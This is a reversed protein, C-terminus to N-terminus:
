SQSRCLKCLIFNSRTIQFTTLYQKPLVFTQYLCTLFQNIRALRRFPREKKSKATKAIGEM